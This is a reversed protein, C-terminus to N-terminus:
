PRATSSQRVILRNSLTVRRSTDGVAGILRELLLRACARGIERAPNDVTTLTPSILSAAEIDDYGTVAVTGPVDIGREALSQMAGIAILDNACVIADMDGGRELLLEVGRMGGERTFATFVQGAAEVSAGAGAIADAYGALRLQSPHADEEGGIFAIRRRGQEILHDVISRIGGTDDSEVTDAELNRLERGLAVVRAGSRALLTEDAASLGYSAIVVGDVRRALTHRLAESVSRIPVTADIISLMYGAPMLVDQMGAAVLPYFPNTIDPVILAVTETTQSRMSRAGPHPRYDLEEVAALVRARTPASVPRNGGLVQSVTSVSVGARRAVDVIGTRATRDTM